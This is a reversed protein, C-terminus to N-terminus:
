VKTFSDEPVDLLIDGDSTSIMAKKGTWSITEVNLEDWRRYQKDWVEDLRVKQVDVLINKLFRIKM